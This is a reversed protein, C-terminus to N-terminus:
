GRCRTYLSASHCGPCGGAPAFAAPLPHGGLCGLLWGPLTPDGHQRSKPGEDPFGEAPLGVVDPADDQKYDSGEHDETEDAFGPRDTTPDDGAKPQKETEPGYCEGNGQRREAHDQDDALM